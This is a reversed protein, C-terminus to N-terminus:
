FRPPNGRGEVGKPRRQELTYLNLVRSFLESALLKQGCYKGIQKKKDIYKSVVNERFKIRVQPHRFSKTLIIYIQIRM